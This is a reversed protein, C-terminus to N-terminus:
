IYMVVIHHNLKEEKVVHPNVFDSQCLIFNEANYKYEYLAQVGRSKICKEM